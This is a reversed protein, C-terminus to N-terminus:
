SRRKKWDYDPGVVDVGPKGVSDPHECMTTIHTVKEGNFKRRRIQEAYKLAELIDDVTEYMPVPVEGTCDLWFIVYIM